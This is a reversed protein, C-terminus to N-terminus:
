KGTVNTTGLLDLDEITTENEQKQGAAGVDSGGEVIEKLIKAAKLGM